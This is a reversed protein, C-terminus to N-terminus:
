QYDELQRICQQLKGIAQRDLQNEADDSHKRDYIALLKEKCEVQNGLAQKTLQDDIQHDLNHKDVLQQLQTKAYKALRRQHEKHLRQEEAKKAQKAQEKKAAANQKEYEWDDDDNDPSSISDYAVKGAITTVLGIGLWILPAPM